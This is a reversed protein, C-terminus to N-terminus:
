EAPERRYAALKRKGAGSLTVALEDRDLQRTIMPTQVADPMVLTVAVGQKALETGVALTFGRVAFKSAVYLSLGPIPALGALSGVNVIHGGGRQVFRRAAERTGYVVGKANVDFLRDVDEDRVAGIWDPILLGANNM